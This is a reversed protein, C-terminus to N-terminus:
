EDSTGDNYSVQVHYKNSPLQSFLLDASGASYSFLGALWHSGDYPFNWTGGTDSTISVATPSSRLGTLHIRSDPQGDPSVSTKGVADRDVGASVAVLTSLFGTVTPPIGIAPFSSSQNLADAEDSTGDSYTVKVRFKKSGDQEFWYDGNG